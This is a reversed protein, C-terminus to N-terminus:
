AMIVLEPDWSNAFEAFRSYEITKERCVRVLPYNFDKQLCEYYASCCYAEFEGKKWDHKM